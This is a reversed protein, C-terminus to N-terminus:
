APALVDRYHHFRGSHLTIFRVAFLSSDEYVLTLGVFSVLMVYWELGNSSIELLTISVPLQAGVMTSPDFTVHFTLDDGVDVVAPLATSAM